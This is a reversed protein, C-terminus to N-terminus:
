LLTRAGDLDKVPISLLVAQILREVERGEQTPLMGVLRQTPLIPTDFRSLLLRASARIQDAEVGYAAKLAEDSTRVRWTARETLWQITAAIVYPSLHEELGDHRALAWLRAAVQLLPEPNKRAALHSVLTHLGAPHTTLSLAQDDEQYEDDPLVIMFARRLRDSIARVDDKAKSPAISTTDLASENGFHVPLNSKLLEILDDRAAIAEVWREMREYQVGLAEIISPQNPARELAGLLVVLAAEHLGLDRLAVSLSRLYEPEDSPDHSDVFARLFQLVALNSRKALACHGRAYSIFAPAAGLELAATFTAEAEDIAGRRFLSVALQTYVHTRTVEDLAPEDLLRTWYTEAAPDRRAMLADAKALLWDISDVVNNQSM